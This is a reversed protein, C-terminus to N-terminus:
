ELIKQWWKKEAQPEAEYVPGDTLGLFGTAELGVPDPSSGSTATPSRRFRAILVRDTADAPTALLSTPSNSHLASQLPDAEPNCITLLHLNRSIAQATSKDFAICRGM